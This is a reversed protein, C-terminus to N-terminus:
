VPLQNKYTLLEQSKESVKKHVDKIFFFIALDLPFIKKLTNPKAHVHKDFQQYRSSAMFRRITMRTIACLNDINFWYRGIDLPTLFFGFNTSNNWNIRRLKFRLQRYLLMSLHHYLTQKNADWPVIEM